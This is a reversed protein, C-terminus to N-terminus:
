HRRCLWVKWVCFEIWHINVQKIIKKRWFKQIKKYVSFLSHRRSYSFSFLFIKSSWCCMSVRLLLMWSALSCTRLSSCSSFSRVLSNSLVLFDVICSIAICIVLHLSPFASSSLILNPLYQYNNNYHNKNTPEQKLTNYPTTAKWCAWM